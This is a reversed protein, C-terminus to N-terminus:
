NVVPQPKYGGYNLVYTGNGNNRITCHNIQPLTSGHLYIGNTAYEIVSYSLSGASLHNFAIGGWDGVAQPSVNSTFIISDTETGDATLNGSVSISFGSNFNVEVGPDITLTVGSNVTISSTVIFPSGAIDWTTDSAIAGGM